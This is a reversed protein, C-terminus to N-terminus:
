LIVERNLAWELGIQFLFYLFFAPIKYFGFFVAYSLSQTLTHTHTHTHAHETMDLEKCDWPSYGM